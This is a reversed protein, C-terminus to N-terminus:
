ATKAVPNFRRRYHRVWLGIALGGLVGLVAFIHFARFAAHATM